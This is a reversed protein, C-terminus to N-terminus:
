DFRNLSFIDKKKNMLNVVCNNQASVFACLFLRFNEKKRQNKTEIRSFHLYKQEDNM